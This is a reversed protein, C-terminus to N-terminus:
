PRTAQCERLRRLAVATQPHQAGLIKLLTQCSQELLPEADVDQGELHLIEGLRSLSDAVEPHEAGLLNRRFGLAERLLVEAEAYDGRKALLAALSNLTRVVYGHEIHSRQGRSALAARLLPEAAADDGALQRLEGVRNLNWAAPPHEPGPQRQWIGLAEQFLPEAAAYDGMDLLITGLSNLTRAVYPDDDGLTKRYIALAERAAGEAQAYEGESQLLLAYRHLGWAVNDHQDGLLKRYTAIGERFLADAAAYDGLIHLLKALNIASSAIDPHAAGLLRRYMALADRLYTEAARYDERNTLLLGLGTLCHAVDPHEDGRLKRFLALAQRHLPEAEALKGQSQLADGLSYLTAAVDEHEPGLLKKRIALAERFLSEAEAHQTRDKRLEALNHLSASVELNEHGYLRVRLALAARLHPEAEEYLGLRQYTRGLADRVIAEVEPQDTMDPGVSRALESLLARKLTVDAGQGIQTVEDLTRQLLERTREANRTQRQAQALLRGQEGYMVLLAAASVTVVLGVAAALAVPVRHRWLTKRLVYWGSDRKAEIPEGALYRAVDRALEGASQYRRAPEKQLCRLVITEVEDGIERRLARPRVAEVHVINHVVDRMRGSVPYPFQGTLMQYLIVGLSYVDTRIDVKDQSGEAQEPSAWPLSGVFQGTVTLAPLGASDDSEEAVLKALGFDLVRPEGAPDIRINSPKLDRHIVGLLHAANVAECIKIFLRLAAGLTATDGPGGHQAIWEDLSQGAIYDMVFYASTGLVGSEHIAVINPHRLRALIEVEREFRAWGQSSALRGGSLVKIAVLRKTSKQVAEYIVGQGGRQVERTIEYGPLADADFGRAWPSAALEVASRSSLGSDSGLGLEAQELLRLVRLREGLAPMLDRHATIVSDDSLEEGSERRRITGAVIEAVRTAPDVSELPQAENAPM